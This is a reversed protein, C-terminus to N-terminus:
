LLRRPRLPTQPAHGFHRIVREVDRKIRNALALETQSDLAIASPRRPLTV